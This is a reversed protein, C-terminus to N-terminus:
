KNETSLQEVSQVDSICRFISNQLLERRIFIDHYIDNLIVSGYEAIQSKKVLAM